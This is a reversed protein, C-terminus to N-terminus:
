LFHQCPVTKFGTTTYATRDVLTQLMYRFLVEQRSEPFPYIPTFHTHLCVPSKFTKSLYFKSIELPKLFVVRSQSSLFHGEYTNRYCEYITLFLTNFYLPNPCRDNSFKKKKNFIFIGAGLCEIKAIIYSKTM